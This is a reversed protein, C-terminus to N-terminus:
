VCSSSQSFRTNTCESITNAIFAHRFGDIFSISCCWGNKNVGPSAPQSKLIHISGSYTAQVLSLIGDYLNLKEFRSSLSAIYAEAKRLKKQM